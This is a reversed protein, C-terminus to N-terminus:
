CKSSFYYVKTEKKPITQTAAHHYEIGTRKDRYGGIFPKKGADNQVFVRYLKTRASYPTERDVFYYTNLPIELVHSIKKM